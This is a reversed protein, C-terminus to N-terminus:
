EKIYGEQEYGKRYQHIMKVLPKLREDDVIMYRYKAYQCDYLLQNGGKIREEVDAPIFFEARDGLHAYFERLFISVGALDFDGFHIYRNPIMQLWTRLDKSQPYRSVFLVRLGEFLYQLGRIYRFSEGNEMGIVVIDEPIRFHDYDQVFVATGPLPSLLFTEDQLTAEIPTYCNVLFGKFARTTILKSDTAKTVLESRRVEEQRTKLEIWDELSMGSTYNRALCMRCGEADIVKFSRMQGRTIQTIVGESLLEMTIQGGIQSAGMSEGNLMRLFKRALSLTLDSM